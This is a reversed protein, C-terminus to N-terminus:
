KIVITKSGYKKLYRSVNKVWLAGSESELIGLRFNCGSCLLGRVCFGCSKEGPCCSHDHDVHWSDPDNKPPTDTGCIACKGKQEEVKKLYDDKTLRYRIKLNRARMGIKKHGKNVSAGHCEKCFAQFGDVTSRNKWFSTTPKSKKCHSCTKTM